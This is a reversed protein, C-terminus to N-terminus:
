CAKMVTVKAFVSYKSLPLVTRLKIRHFVLIETITGNIENLTTNKPNKKNQKQNNPIIEFENM